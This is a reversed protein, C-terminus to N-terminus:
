RTLAGVQGPALHGGPDRRRVHGAAAGFGSLLWALYQTQPQLLAGSLFFTMFVLAAPVVRWPARDITALVLFLAVLGGALIGYEFALKPIVSYLVASDNSSVRSGTLVRDVAGPGAGVFFRVPEEVLGNWVAQFPLVFRANGSTGEQSFEDQRSLLFTALPSLYLLAPVVVGTVLYSIRLLGPARVLLIIAGAGLLFLGTGSVASALGGALLLLQWTRVRLMIGILIALACYQSLFSPELMVFATSKYIGLGYALENNFNYFPVQFDEPIVLQLPDEWDWLGVLQAALQAIGIASLVLMTWLFTTGARTVVAVGFPDRARLAWPAYLVVLLLLSTMSYQGSLGLWSVAATTLFVASVAVILLGARLWSVTVTRRVLCMGVFAYALPTALSTVTGGVDIGLRQTVVLLVVLVSIARLFWPDPAPAGEQPSSVARQEAPDTVEIQRPAATV